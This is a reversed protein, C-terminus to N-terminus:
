VKLSQLQLESLVTTSMLRILQQLGLEAKVLHVCRQKDRQHQECNM